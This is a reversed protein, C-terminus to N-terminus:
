LMVCCPMQDFRIISRPTVGSNILLKEGRDSHVTFYLANCDEFAYKEISVINEPIEIYWLGTCYAFAYKGISVVSNPINVSWLRPCESFSGNRIATVSTPIVVSKIDKRNFFMYPPIETINEPVILNGDDPLWWPAEEEVLSINKHEKSLSKILNEMGKCHVIIKCGINCGTFIHYGITRISNPIDIFRMNECFTFLGPYISTMSTPLTISTLNECFSFTSHKISSVRSPINLEILNKCDTFVGKGLSKLSNPLQLSTFLCGYFAEDGLHTVSSPIEISKLNKCKYFVSKEISKISTPITISTLNRCCSFAYPVFSTIKTSIDVSKIDLRNKFAYTWVLGGPIKLHGDPPLWWCLKDANKIIQKENIGLSILLNKMGESYVTFKCEANSDSFVNEGISIISNPLIISTLKVCGKFAENGISIVGNPIEISSLNICDKFASYRISTVNKPIVISRIGLEYFTRAGISLVSDPIEASKIARRDPLYFCELAKIVYTSKCQDQPCIYIGEAFKFRKNEIRGIEDKYNIFVNRFTVSGVSDDYTLKKLTKLKHKAESYSLKAWVDIRYFKKTIEGIADLFANLDDDTYLHLTAIKPYFKVQSPKISVPNFHFRDMDEEAKSSTLILTKHDEISRLYKAVIMRSNIDLQSRKVDCKPQNNLAFSSMASCTCLYFMISNLKM